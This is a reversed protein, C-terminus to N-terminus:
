GSGCECNPHTEEFFRRAQEVTNVLPANDICWQCPNASLFIIAENIGNEENFQLRADNYVNQFEAKIIEETKWTEFKNEFLNNVDEAIEINTKGSEYGEILLQKLGKAGTDDGYKLGQMVKESIKGAKDTLVKYQHEPIKDFEFKLGTEKARNERGKLNSERYLSKLNEKIYNNPIGEVIKNINDESLDLNELEMKQFGSEKFVTEKLKNFHLSLKKINKDIIKEKGQFSIARLRDNETQSLNRKSKEPIMNEPQSNNFTQHLEMKPITNSLEFGAPKIESQAPIREDYIPDDKPKWGLTIRVENRSIAGSKQAVDVIRAASRLSPMINYYEFGWDIIKTQTTIFLNFRDRMLIKKPKVAEQYTNDDSFESQQQFENQFMQLGEEIGQTTSKGLDLYDGEMSQYNGRMIDVKDKARINVVPNNKGKLQSNIKAEYRKQNLESVMDEDWLLYDSIKYKQTFNNYNWENNKIETMMLKWIPELESLGDCTQPNPNLFLIIDSYDFEAVAKGNVMQKIGTIRKKGEDIVLNIGGYIFYLYEPLGYVNKVVEWAAKGEVTLKMITKKEMDTFSDLENPYEFLTKLTNLNEISADPTKKDWYYGITIAKNAIKNIVKWAAPSNNVMEWLIKSENMNYIEHKSSKNGYIYPVTLESKQNEMNEIKTELAKIKNQLPNDQTPKKFIDFISM